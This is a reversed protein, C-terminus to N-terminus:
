KLGDEAFSQTVSGGPRFEILKEGGKQHRKILGAKMKADKAKKTNWSMVDPHQVKAASRKLANMVKDYHEKDTLPTGDANRIDFLDNDGAVPKGRGPEGPRQDIM